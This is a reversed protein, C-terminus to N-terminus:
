PSVMVSIDAIPGLSSLRSLAKYENVATQKGDVSMHM